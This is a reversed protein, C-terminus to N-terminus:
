PNPPQPPAPAREQALPEWREWDHDSISLIRMALPLFAVLLLVFSAASAWQAEGLFSVVIAAILLVPSWIPVVRRRFLAIALLLSGLAIGVLFFGFFYVGIVASDEISDSLAVMAERDDADAMEIDVGNILLIPVLGILGITLLGAGIQGLGVDRTRLLRVLGLTGAILLLTGVTDLAGAAVYRGKDDAVEQLYTATDDSWAPDVLSAAVLLLPGGILGVAALTRGFSRSDSM